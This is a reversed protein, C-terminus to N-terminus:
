VGTKNQIKRHCTDLQFCGPDVAHTAGDGLRVVGDEGRDEDVRHTEVKDNEQEVSVLEESNVVLRCIQKTPASESLHYELVPQDEEDDRSNICTPELLLCKGMRAKLNRAFRQAVTNM